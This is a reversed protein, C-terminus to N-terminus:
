SNNFLKTPKGQRARTWDEQDLATLSALMLQVTVNLPEGRSARPVTLPTTMSEIVLPAFTFGGYRLGVMQPSRSPLLTELFGKGDSANLIAQALGGNAALQRALVWQALADICDQVEAQPSEFARFHMTIPLKIPAAGAFIQTSNLKTMSTRGQAERSFAIADRVIGAILGSKGEYGEGLLASGAARAYSEFSGSQLLGMLFPAKADAGSQEFPSQWNATLELNSETIPARVTISNPEALGRADVPFISALLSQSLGGWKSSLVKNAM